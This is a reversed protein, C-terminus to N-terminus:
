PKGPLASPNHQEQEFFHLFVVGGKKSARPLTAKPDLKKVLLRPTEKEFKTEVMQCPVASQHPMELVHSKPNPKAGFSALFDMGMILDHPADDCVVFQETKLVKGVQVSVTTNGKVQLSSGNACTLQRSETEIPCELKQSLKYSIVCM